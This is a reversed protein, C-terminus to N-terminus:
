SLGPSRSSTQIHIQLPPQVLLEPVTSLATCLSSNREAFRPGAFAAPRMSSPPFAGPFSAMCNRIGQQRKFAEIFTRCYNWKVNRNRKLSVSPLLASGWSFRASFNKLHWVSRNPTEVSVGAGGCVAPREWCQRRQSM